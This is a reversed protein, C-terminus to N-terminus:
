SYFFNILGVILVYGGCPPSPLGEIFDCGDSQFACRECIFEKFFATSSRLGEFSPKQSLLSSFLQIEEVTLNKKLINYGGCYLDEKGEKYFKCFGRCILGSYSADKM